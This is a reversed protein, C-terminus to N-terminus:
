DNGMIRAIEDLVPQFMKLSIQAVVAPGISDELVFCLVPENSFTGNEKIHCETPIMQKVFYDGLDIQELQWNYVKFDPDKSLNIPKM